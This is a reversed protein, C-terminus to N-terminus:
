ENNVEREQITPNRVIEWDNATLDDSKRGTKYVRHGNRQHICFVYEPNGADSALQYRPYLMLRSFIGCERCTKHAKCVESIKCTM